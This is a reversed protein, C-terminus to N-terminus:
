YNKLYLFKEILINIENNLSASIIFYTLVGFLIIHVTKDYLTISKEEYCYSHDNEPMPYLFIVLLFATWCIIIFILSLQKM